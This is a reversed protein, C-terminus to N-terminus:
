RYAHAQLDYLEAYLGGGAALEAHTGQEAVAGEHLVVIMDTM